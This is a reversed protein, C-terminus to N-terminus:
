GPARLWKLMLAEDPDLGKTARPRSRSLRNLEDALTGALWNELVRPHIYARRCVARTNGLRSAVQDIVMNLTRAQGSKTEPVIEERLLNAATITGAWTRFHKSTFEAHAIERLYLNVDQSSLTRPQGDDDVYQFLSQGSLEQMSRIVRVLRRDVLQLNWEKGSKGKFKFRLRSGDDAVHRSRLTTLGYSKNDRAYTHNGIRILTHQLLWVISALVRERPLGRRKLDQDIRQRIAPLAAGFAALSGFKAEDRIEAWRAHYRYQKRGRQDRGTAQLHGEADTSIWVDTYAPPIALARIRALTDPDRVPKGDPGRYSFGKGSRRRTIGPAEDSVYVLAARLAAQQPDHPNHEQLM